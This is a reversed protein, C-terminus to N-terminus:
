NKKYSKAAKKMAAKMTLKPNDTRVQKLHIQWKKLAPPLGKKRKKKVVKKAM